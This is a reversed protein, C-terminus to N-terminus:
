HQRRYWVLLGFIFVGGPVGALLIWRVTTMQRATMSFRYEKVPRPGISGLLQSRDLLWNVAHWAFDRNAAQDIMQNGLFRSDGAVIMRTAGRDLNVAKISGKEVAAILPFEGRQDVGPNPRAIGGRIDTVAQAETSSKVLEIVQPADANQSGSSKKGISRPMVLALPVNAQGLPKVVPHNGYDAVIVFSDNRSNKEDAIVNGGVDVGWKALLHEFGPSRYNLLLLVRGGLILYKDLKDLESTDLAKLPGAIVLLQCDAPVENTTRLPLAALDLNSQKLFSAFKGFGLEGNLNSPDHEGYGFLFYAKRQRPDTVSAIASTFLREGNFSKRKVEQSKGSMLQSLDYDSLEGQSVFKTRGGSEFVVMDRAQDPLRYQARVLEAKAPERVYDVSDLAIKPSQRAYEKLLATVQSHLTEDPDFFITIKVQNVLSKLVQISLPSLQASNDAVWSHRQSHRAGLFNAMAVIALLATVALFLHFGHSLRQRASFSTRLPTDNAM